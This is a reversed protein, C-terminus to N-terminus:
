EYDDLRTDIRNLAEQIGALQAESSQAVCISPLLQGLVVCLIILNKM